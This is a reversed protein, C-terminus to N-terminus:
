VSVAFYRKFFPLSLFRITKVKSTKASEIHKAQWLNSAPIVKCIKSVKKAMLINDLPDDTVLGFSSILCDVGLNSLFELWEDVEKEEFLRYETVFRIEVGYQKALEICLKVDTQVDKYNKERMWGMNLGLEVIKAGRREALIIAAHRLETPNQGYPCDVSAALITKTGELYEKATKLYTIPVSFVSVNNKIALFTAEQVDKTTIEPQTLALELQM